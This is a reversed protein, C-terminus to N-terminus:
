AGLNTEGENKPAAAKAKTWQYDQEDRMMAPLIGCLKRALAVVGVKYGRRKVIDLTWNRLPASDESNSRVVGWAAQVLLSRLRPPGAKTIAGRNQKEGSSRESPVLGVYAEVQHANKFRAADDVTSVFAAATIPGAARATSDSCSCHCIYRTRTRVLTERVALQAKVARQADSSRHAKRYGGIRCADAL